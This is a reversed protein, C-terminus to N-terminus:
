QSTSRTQTFTKWAAELREIEHANLISKVSECIVVVRLLAARLKDIEAELHCENCKRKFHDHHCVYSVEINSAPTKLPQRRCPMWTSGFDTSYSYLEAFRLWDTQKNLYPVGSNISNQKAISTTVQVVVNGANEVLLARWSAFDFPVADMNTEKM